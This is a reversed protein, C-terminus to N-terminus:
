AAIDIFGYFLYTSVELWNIRVKSKNIKLFFEGQMNIEDQRHVPLQGARKKIKLFFLGM